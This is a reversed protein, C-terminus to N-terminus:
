MCRDAYKILKSIGLLVQPSVMVRPAALYKEFFSHVTQYPECGFDSLDLWRGSSTSQRFADDDTGTGDIFKSFQSGQYAATLTRSFLLMDKQTFVINANLADKAFVVDTSGHSIDEVHRGSANWVYRGNEVKLLEKFMVALAKAKECYKQSKGLRCLGIYVRGMALDREV